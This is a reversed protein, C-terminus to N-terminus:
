PKGGGSETKRVDLSDFYSKVADQCDRPVRDRALASAAGQRAAQIIEAYENAADGKDPIGSVFLEQLVKGQNVKSASRKSEFSTATANEPPEGGRGKGEGGTGDGSGNGKAGLAAEQSMMNEVEKADFGNFCEGLMEKKADALGEKMMKLNQCEELAQALDNMGNCAKELETKMSDLSEKSSAIESLLKALDGKIGGSKLQEAMKALERALAKREADSLSANQLKAGLDKLTDAANKFQGEKLEKAAKSLQKALEQPLGKLDPMSTMAKSAQELNRQEALKDQHKNEFEGLKRLAAQKDASALEKALEGLEKAMKKQEESQLSEVRKEILALKEGLKRAGEVVTKKEAVLRDARAKRGLIDQQPILLATLAVCFAVPFRRGARNLRLPVLRRPSLHPAARGARELTVVAAEDRMGLAEVGSALLNRLGAARDAVYGAEARTQRFSLFGALVVLLFLCGGFMGTIAADHMGVYFLKDLFWCIGLLGVVSAAGYQLWSWARVIRMWARFADIKSMLVDKSLDDM